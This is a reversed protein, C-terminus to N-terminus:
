AARIEQAPVKRAVALRAAAAIRAAGIGCHEALEAPEGSEGFRDALGVFEIPAPQIIPKAVSLLLAM